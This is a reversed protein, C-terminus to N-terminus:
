AHHLAYYDVFAQDTAYNQFTIDIHNFWINYLATKIDNVQTATFGDAPSTEALWWSLSFLQPIHKPSVSGFTGAGVQAIGLASLNAGVASYSASDLRDALATLSGKTSIYEDYVAVLRLADKIDNSELSKASSVRLKNVLASITSNSSVRAGGNVTPSYYLTSGNRHMESIVEVHIGFLKLVGDATGNVIRYALIPMDGRITVLTTAGIRFRGLSVENASQADAKYLEVYTQDTPDLVGGPPVNIFTGPAAADSFHHPIYLTSVQILYQDTSSGNGENLAVGLLTTPLAAIATAGSAATSVATFSVGEADAETVVYDVLNTVAPDLWATGSTYVQAYGYQYSAGDLNQILKHQALLGPQTGLSEEGGGIKRNPNLLARARPWGAVQSQISQLARDRATPEKNLRYNPHNAELDDLVQRAAAGRAASAPIASYMLTDLGERVSAFAHNATASAEQYSQMVMAIQQGYQALAGVADDIANVLSQATGHMSASASFAVSDRWYALLSQFRASFGALGGSSITVQRRLTLLETSTETIGDSLSNLFSATLNLSGM